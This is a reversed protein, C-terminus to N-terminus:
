LQLPGLFITTVDARREIPHIRDIWLRRLDSRSQVERCYTVEGHRPLAPVLVALQIRAREGDLLWAVISSQASQPVHPLEGIEHLVNVDEAAHDLDVGIEFYLYAIRDDPRSGSQVRITLHAIQQHIIPDPPHRGVAQYPLSARLSRGQM